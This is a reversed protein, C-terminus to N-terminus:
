SEHVCVRSLDHKHAFFRNFEFLSRAELCDLWACPTCAFSFSLYSLLLSSLVVFFVRYISIFLSSSLQFVSLYPFFLFLSLHSVCMSDLEDGRLGKEETRSRKRLTCVGQELAQTKRKRGTKRALVKTPMVVLLGAPIVLATEIREAREGRRISRGFDILSCDIRVSFHRRVFSRSKRCSGSNIFLEILSLDRWIYNMMIRFVKKMLKECKEHLFHEHIKIVILKFNIKLIGGGIDKFIFPFYM